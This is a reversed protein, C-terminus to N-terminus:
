LRKVVDELRKRINIFLWPILQLFENFSLCLSRCFDLEISFYLLFSFCHSAILLLKFFLLSNLLETKDAANTM